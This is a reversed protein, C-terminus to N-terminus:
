QTNAWPLYPPPWFSSPSILPQPYLISRSVVDFSSLPMAWHRPTDFPTVFPPL